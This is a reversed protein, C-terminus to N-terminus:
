ANQPHYQKSDTAECFYGHICCKSYLICHTLANIRMPKYWLQTVLPLLATSHRFDCRAFTRIPRGITDLRHGSDLRIIIISGIQDPIANPSIINGQIGRNSFSFRFSPSIKSPIMHISSAHQKKRYVRENYGDIDIWLVIGYSDANKTLQFIFYVLAGTRFHQGM